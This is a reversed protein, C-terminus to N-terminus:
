EYCLGFFIYFLFLSLFGIKINGLITIDLDMSSEGNSNGLMDVEMRVPIFEVDMVRGMLGSEQMFMGLISGIFGLDMGLVRGISGVIGAEEQGRKWGMATMSGM